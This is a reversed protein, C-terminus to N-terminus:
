ADWTNSAENSENSNTNIRSRVVDRLVRGVRCIALKLDGAWKKFWIGNWTEDSLRRQQHGTRHCCCFSDSPWLAVFCALLSVSNISALPWDPLLTDKRKLLCGYFNTPPKLVPATTSPVFSGYPNAKLIYKPTISKLADYPETRRNYSVITRGHSYYVHETKLPWVLKQQNALTKNVKNVIGVRFPCFLLFM